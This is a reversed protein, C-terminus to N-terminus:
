PSEESHRYQLPSQKFRAKFAACFASSSSFGAKGAVENVTMTTNKLLRQAEEFRRQRMVESPDRNWMKKLRRSLHSRSYGMKEAFEKVSRINGAVLQPTGHNEHRADQFTQHKANCDEWWTNLWRYAESSWFQSTRLPQEAVLKCFNEALKVTNSTESLEHIQGYNGIVHSFLETAATGKFGIYIRRWPIGGKRYVLTGRGPLMCALVTGPGIRTARGGEEYDVYGSITFTWISTVELAHLFFPNPPRMTKELDDSCCVIRTTPGSWDNAEPILTSEEISPKRPRM